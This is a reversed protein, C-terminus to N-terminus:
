STPPTWAMRCAAHRDMGNGFLIGTSRPASHEDMMVRVNGPFSGRCALAVCIESILACPLDGQPPLCYNGEM